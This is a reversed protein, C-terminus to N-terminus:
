PREKHSCNPDECWDEHTLEEEHGKKVEEWAYHVRSLREETM